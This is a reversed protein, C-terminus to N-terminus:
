YSVGDFYSARPENYEGTLIARDMFANLGQASFDLTNRIEALKATHKARLIEKAQEMLEPFSLLAKGWRALIYCSTSYNNEKAVLIPDDKVYEPHWVELYQMDPLNLERVYSIVQMVRVPIPCASFSTVNSSQPFHLKYVLHEQKTMKRYPCMTGDKSLLKAQGDLGLKEILMAAEGDAALQAMENPELETEYTEVLM